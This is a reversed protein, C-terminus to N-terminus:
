RLKPFWFAKRNNITKDSPVARAMEKNEVKTTRRTEFKNGFMGMYSITRSNTV